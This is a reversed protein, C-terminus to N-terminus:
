TDLRREGEWVGLGLGAVVRVLVLMRSSVRPSTFHLEMLGATFSFYENLTAANLVGLRWWWRENLEVEDKVLRDLTLKPPPLEERCRDKRLVDWRFLEIPPPRFLEDTAPSPVFRCIVTFGIVRVVIRGPTVLLVALFIKSCNSDRELGRPCRGLERGEVGEDLGHELVEVGIEDRGEVGRFGYWRPGVTGM